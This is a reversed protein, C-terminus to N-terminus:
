LLGRRRGWLGTRIEAEADCGVEKVRDEPGVRRNIVPKKREDGKEEGKDAKM